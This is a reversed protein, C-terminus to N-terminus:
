CLRNDLNFLSFFNSDMMEYFGEIYTRHAWEVGGNLKQSGETATANQEHGCYFVVKIQAPRMSSDNLKSM